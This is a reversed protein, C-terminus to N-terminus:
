PLQMLYAPRRLLHSHASPARLTRLPAAIQPHNDEPGGVMGFAPVMPDPQCASAETM